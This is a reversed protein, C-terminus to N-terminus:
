SDVFKRVSRFVDILYDVVLRLFWFITPFPQEPTHVRKQVIRMHNLDNTRQGVTFLDGLLVLVLWADRHSCM